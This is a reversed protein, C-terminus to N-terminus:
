DCIAQLAQWEAASLIPRTEGQAEAFREAAAAREATAPHSSLYEPLALPSEAETAGIQGFFDALGGSDVGAEALLRLAFADAETEAARSYRSSLMHEAVLALAAGGSFDGLIMTLLGTSGAARLAHRTADRAEVHGIEHALVGAVEEPSGASDLLGRLIVVQGGPAAFANVMEHDFVLLDISYRMEQGATLRALLSDLAARGGPAACRFGSQGSGGLMGEMQAVVTKGFALEREVPILRALTGALAPLIVFLLLAAATLAGAGYRLVRRLSGPHRDRRDLAPRSRRLWDIAARDRLVLRAPDRPAEDETAAHRTLTLRDPAGGAADLARLDMLPWRLVAPLSPGHIELAMRDDSLRLRVPHARATLGDHFTADSEQM